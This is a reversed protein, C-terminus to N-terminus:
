SFNHSMCYQLSMNEPGETDTAGEVTRSLRLLYKSHDVVVKESTEDKSRRRLFYLTRVEKGRRFM